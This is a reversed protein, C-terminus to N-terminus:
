MQICNDYEQSWVAPCVHIGINYFFILLIQQYQTTSCHHKTNTIITNWSLIMGSGLSKMQFFLWLQILKSHWFHVQIRKNIIHNRTEVPMNRKTTISVVNREVMTCQLSRWTDTMRSPFSEPIKFWFYITRMTNEMRQHHKMDTLPSLRYWDPSTVWILWLLYSM